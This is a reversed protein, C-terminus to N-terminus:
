VKDTKNEFYGVNEWTAVILYEPNFERYEPWTGTIDKRARELLISDNCTKNTYWLTGAETERTDVDGYFPAVFTVNALPLPNDNYSLTSNNTIPLLDDNPENNSYM